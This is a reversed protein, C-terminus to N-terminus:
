DPLTNLCRQFLLSLQNTFSSRFSPGKNIILLSELLFTSNQTDAQFWFFICGTISAMEQNLRDKISQIHCFDCMWFFRSNTEWCAEIPRKGPSLKTMRKVSSNVESPIPPLFHSTQTSQISNLAKTREANSVAAGAPGTYVVLVTKLHCHTQHSNLLGVTLWLKNGRYNCKLTLGASITGRPKDGSFCPSFLSLGLLCTSLWIKSCLSKVNHANVGKIEFLMSSREILFLKETDRLSQGWNGSSAIILPNCCLGEWMRATRSLGLSIFGVPDNERYIKNRFTNRFTNNTLRKQNLAM